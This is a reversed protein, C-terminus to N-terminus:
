RRFKIPCNDFYHYYEEMYINFNDNDIFRRYIRMDNIRSSVYKSNCIITRLHNVERMLQKVEGMNLNYIKISEYFVLDFM